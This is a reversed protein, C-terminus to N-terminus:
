LYKKLHNWVLNDYGYVDPYNTVRGYEDPYITYYIIYLPVHPKVPMYSILKFPLKRGTGNEEQQHTRIYDRGQETM